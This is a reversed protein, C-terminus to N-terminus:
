IYTKGDIVDVIEDEDINEEVAEILKEAEEGNYKEFTVVEDDGYGEDIEDFLNDPVSDDDYDSFDEINSLKFEKIFKTFSLRKLICLGLTILTVFLIIKSYNAFYIIACNVLLVIISIMSSFKSKEEVEKKNKSVIPYICNMWGIDVLFVIFTIIGCVYVM